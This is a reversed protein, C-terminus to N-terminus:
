GQASFIFLNCQNCRVLQWQSNQGRCQFSSLELNSPISFVNPEILMQVELPPDTASIYQQHTHLKGNVSSHDVTVKLADQYQNEEAWACVPVARKRQGVCM